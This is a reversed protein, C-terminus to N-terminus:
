ANRRGPFRVINGVTARGEPIKYRGDNVTAFRGNNAHRRMLVRVSKLKEDPLGLGAHVQEPTAPGHNRLYDTILDTANDIRVREPQEAPPPFMVPEFERETPTDRRGLSHLHDELMRDTMDFSRDVVPRRHRHSRIYFEGQQELLHADFGMKTADEGLIMRTHMPSKTGLCVVTDINAPGDTRGGFVGSSSLQTGLIATVGLGTTVALITELKEATKPAQRTLEAVEDVVLVIHPGERDAHWTKQITGTDQFSVGLQAGRREAQEIVWDILATADAANFAVRMGVHEYARFEVGGFKMDIGVVLADQQELDLLTSILGNLIVSKGARTRGAVLIHGGVIDVDTNPGVPVPQRVTTNGPTQWPVTGRQEPATDFTEIAPEPRQGPIRAAGAYAKMVALQAMEVEHAQQRELARHDARTKGLLRWYQTSAGITAATGVILAPVTPAGATVATAWTCAGAASGLGFAAPKHTRALYAATALTTASASYFLPTGWGPNTAAHLEIATGIPVAVYAPLAEWWYRRALQCARRIPGPPSPIVGPIAPPEPQRPIM